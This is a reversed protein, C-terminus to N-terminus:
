YPTGSPLIRVCHHLTHSPAQPPVTIKSAQNNIRSLNTKNEASFSTGPNFILTLISEIISRYVLTLIHNSVNLKRLLHLRQKSM